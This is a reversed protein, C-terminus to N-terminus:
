EFFRWKDKTVREELTSTLRRTPCYCENLLPLTLSTYLMSPNHQTTTTKSLPFIFTLSFFTWNLIIYHPSTTMGNFNTCLLFFFLFSDHMTKWIHHTKFKHIGIVDVKEDSQRLTSHNILTAPLHCINSNSKSNNLLDSLNWMLICTIGIWPQYKDAHIASSLIWIM